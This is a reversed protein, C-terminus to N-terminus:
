FGLLKTLRVRRAVALFVLPLILGVATTALLVLPLSDLGLKLMVIRLTASFITHTLYIAM